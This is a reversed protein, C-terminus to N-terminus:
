GVCSTLVEFTVRLSKSEYRLEITFTSSTGAAHSQANHPPPTDPLHVRM